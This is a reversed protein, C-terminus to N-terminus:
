VRNLLGRLESDTSGINELMKVATRMYDYDKSVTYAKEKISILEQKLQM